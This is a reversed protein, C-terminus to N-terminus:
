FERWEVVRLAPEQGSDDAGRREGRQRPPRRSQRNQPLRGDDRAIIDWEREVVAEITYSVGRVTGTSRIRFTTSRGSLNGAARAGAAINIDIGAQPLEAFSIFATDNKPQRKGRPEPRRRVLSNAADEGASLSNTAVAFLAHAVEPEVTNLNISNGAYIGMLDRLGPRWDPPRGIQNYYRPERWRLRDDEEKPWASGYFLEPTVGYIQLLEDLTQIRDNKNRYPAQEDRRLRKDDAILEEYYKNETVGAELEAATPRDDPDAYDVVAGAVKEADEEDRMGLVQMLMKLALPNNVGAPMFRNDDVVRLTYTGHLMKGDSDADTYEEDERAWPDGKADVAKDVGQAAEDLRLDNRLDVAARGVGARALAMAYFRDRYQQTLDVNLNAEHLISYAMITMILIVWLTLILAVGRRRSLRPWRLLTPAHPLNALRM